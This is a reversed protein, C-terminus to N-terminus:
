KLYPWGILSLWYDSHCWILVTNWLRIKFAVM